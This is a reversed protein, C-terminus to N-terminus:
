QKNNNLISQQIATAANPSVVIGTLKYGNKILKNRRHTNGRFLLYFLWFTNCVGTTMFVAEDTAGSAGVFVIAIVETVVIVATLLWLKKVLTWIIGFFAGPWCLGRKVAVKGTGNDYVEFTKM